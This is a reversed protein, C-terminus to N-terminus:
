VNPERRQLAALKALRQPDTKPPCLAPVYLTSSQSVKATHLDGLALCEISPGHVPLTAAEYVIVEHTHPYTDSLAEALLRLRRPDTDFATFATDGVVSIQWLVLPATPDIRRAHIFFDHAEYSQWGSGPDVGLDALLCDEASIGPLMTAEFGEELAQKIALRSPLVFVGPHGYFAGCVRMGSRVAELMTQAMREYTDRRSRNPAYLSQMCVVNANLTKLWQLTLPDVVAFVIEGTKIADEAEPTCQAGLRIGTGVIILSGKKV